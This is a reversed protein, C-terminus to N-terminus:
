AVVKVNRSTEQNVTVVRSTDQGVVVTRNDIDLVTTIRSQQREVTVLRPLEQPVQLSATHTRSIVYTKRKIDEAVMVERKEQKEM